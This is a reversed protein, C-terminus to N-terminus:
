EPNRIDKLRESIAQYLSDNSGGDQKYKKLILEVDKIFNDELENSASKDFYEKSVWLYRNVWDEISQDIISEEYKIVEVNVDNGNVFEIVNPTYEDVSVVHNLYLGKLLKFYKEATLYNDFWLLLLVNKYYYRNKDPDRSIAYLSDQRFALWLTNSKDNINITELYWTRHESNLIKM